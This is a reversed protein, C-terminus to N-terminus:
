ELDLEKAKKFVALGLTCGIALYVYADIFGIVLSGAVPVSRLPYSIAWQVAVIATYIAAAHWYTGGMRFITAAGLIPNLTQWFSRAVGAVILAVPTYVVKWALALVVAPLVWLPARDPEEAPPAGPAGEGEPIPVAEEEALATEEGEEGGSEPPPSPEPAQANVAEVAVLPTLFAPVVAVMAVVVLPGASIILAALGLRLPTVLDSIDSFDPMYQKLNGGAVKSLASFSYAMLVGQSFVVAYGGGGFKGVVTFFWTFLALLVYAFKDVFPYALITGLEEGMSRGRQRDRERAEEFKAAPTCLGECVPCLVASGVPKGCADCFGKQCAPCVHAARAQPHNACRRQDGPSPPRPRSPTPAAGAATGAGASPSPPPRSVSAGPAPAPRPAASPRAPSAAVAGATPSAPPRVPAPAVAPPPPPDPEKLVLSAEQFPFIAACGACKVKLNQNETKEDPVNIIRRCQPCSIRM